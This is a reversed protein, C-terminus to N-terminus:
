KRIMKIFRYEIGTRSKNITSVESIKFDNTLLERNFYVDGTYNQQIETILIETIKDIFLKYIESGGIVFIKSKYNKIIDDIGNVDIFILNKTSTYKDPNTTIVINVRDSLPAKTGLSEFTKRGMIIVNNITKEKFHILDEPVYWPIKNMLGIVNNLSLAVILIFEM